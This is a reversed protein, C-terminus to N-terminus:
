LYPAFIEASELDQNEFVIQEFYCQTSNISRHRLWIMIEIASKGNRAHTIGCSHRLSHISFDSNLRANEAYVKFRYKIVQASIPEDWRKPHPFLYPNKRDAKKTRKKLYSDLKECLKGNLDYTRLRGGKLAQISLQHSELNLDKIQIKAAEGVRLGLFFILRFMFMDRRNKSKDVVQFFRKLEEENLYKLGTKKTGKPRGVM